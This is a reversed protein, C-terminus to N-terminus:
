QCLRWRNGGIDRYSTPSGFGITLRDNNNNIKIFCFDQGLSYYGRNSYFKGKYISLNNSSSNELYYQVVRDCTPMNCTIENQNSMYIYIPPDNTDATYSRIINRSVINESSGNGLYIGWGNYAEIVNREIICNKSGELAIECYSGKLTLNSITVHSTNNIKINCEGNSSDIEGIQGDKPKITFNKANIILNGLYPGNGLLLTVGMLDSSNEVRKKLDLIDVIDVQNLGSVIPTIPSPPLIPPVPAVTTGISGEKAIYEIFAIWAMGHSNCACGCRSKAVRDLKFEWKVLHSGNGIEFSRNEWSSRDCSANEINDIYFCFNTYDSLSLTTDTNKKWAFRLQGPGNIRSSIVSSDPCKIDNSTFSPRGQFPNGSDQAWKLGNNYNLNINNGLELNDNSPLSAVIQVLFVVAVLALAIKIM